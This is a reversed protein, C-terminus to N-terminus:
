IQHQQASVRVLKHGKLQLFDIWTSKGSGKPGALVTVEGNEGAFFLSQQLNLLESSNREIIIRSTEMTTVSVEVNASCARVPDYISSIISPVASGLLLSFLLVFSVL